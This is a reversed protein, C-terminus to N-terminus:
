GRLGDGFPGSAQAGIGASQNYDERTHIRAEKFSMTMNVISPRGGELIVNGQPSYNMKFNSIMGPKFEFYYNSDIGRFFVEVIDPYSLLARDLATGSSSIGKYAPLIHQKIKREIERLQLSERNNKPSLIWSFTFNKLDVGNFTLTQHPNVASGSALDIAQGVGLRDLSNRAFFSAGKLFSGVDSFDGSAFNAGATKAQSNADGIIDRFNPAAGGSQVAQIGEAALSGLAGEESDQIRIDFGHEINQPLPLVISDSLQAQTSFGRSARSYTYSYFNFVIGIPGLDEPFRYATFRSDSRRSEITQPRTM